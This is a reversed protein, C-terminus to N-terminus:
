ELLGYAAKLKKQRKPDSVPKLEAFLRQGWSEDRIVDFGSDYLMDLICMRNPAWFNTWDKGLADDVYYRAAAVGSCFENECHTELYVVGCSLTHVISLGRLMDPLHYLVGLFFIIDFTGLNAQPLDYVNLRRYDFRHGYLEEMVAFGHDGRDRYDVCVVEAGRKHAERSYFGDSPGIDLVRQGSLSDSLRLKNDLLVKPDFVGPSQLGPFVEFSHHWHPVSAVLRKAEELTMQVEGHFLRRGM